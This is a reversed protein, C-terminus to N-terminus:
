YSGGISSGFWGNHKLGVIEEIHAKSDQAGFSFLFQSLDNSGTGRGVAM